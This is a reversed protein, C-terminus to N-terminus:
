IFIFYLRVIYIYIIYTCITSFNVSVYVLLIIYNNPMSFIREKFTALKNGKLMNIADLYLESFLHIM